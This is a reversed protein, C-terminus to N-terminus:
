EQNGIWIPSSWAMEGDMRVVRVQVWDGVQWDGPVWTEDIRDQGLPPRDLRVEARLSGVRILQPQGFRVHGQDSLEVSQALRERELLLVPQEGLKVRALLGCEGFPGLEGDIRLGAETQVIASPSTRRFPRAAGVWDADELRLSLRPDRTIGGLRVTLWAEDASGWWGFALEGNRLVEVRAIPQGAAVRVHLAAKQDVEGVQGMLLSGLRVDLAMKATAAYSRRARLAQFLGARTREKVYVATFAGATTVHDSAAVVGFRRGAKLYDVAHPHDPVAHFARLADTKSFYSGRRSQYIEVASEVAPRPRPWDLVVKPDALQHPIAIWKGAPYAIFRKKTSWKRFPADLAEVPDACFFNRHGDTQAQEFGFLTVFGVERNFREAMEMSYAWQGQTLHQYHETLALFDLQGVDIGYRYQALQNGDEDMKCRSLDSHRHLDGWMRLMGEPLLQPDPDSFDKEAAPDQRGLPRTSIPEWSPTSGVMSLELAVLRSAGSLPVEWAGARPFRELRSDSEYVLALGQGELPLVALGDVGPGDSHPLTLVPSWGESANSRAAVRWEWAVRRNAGTDAAGRKGKNELRNWRAMARFFLWLVGAEDVVLRPLEAMSYGETGAGLAGALMGEPLPLSQFRDGKLRGFRIQRQAHLGGGRGFNAAGEDWAVFIAGTADVALSANAEFRDTGAVRKEAPRGASVIVDYDGSDFRDFALIPESDVGRVFEPCWGVPQGRDLLRGNRWNSSSVHIQPGPLQSLDLEDPLWDRWIRDPAQRKSKASLSSKGSLKAGRTWQLKREGTSTRYFLWTLSGTRILRPAHPYLGEHANGTLMQAKSLEIRPSEVQSGQFGVLVLCIPAVWRLWPERIARKM